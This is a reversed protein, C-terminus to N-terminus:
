LTAGRKLAREYALNVLHDNGLADALPDIEQGSLGLHLHRRWGEARKFRGSMRGIEIAMDEMTLVLSSFGQSTQLWGQQSVHAALATQKTKQVSVTNVFSGPAIRRRLGDCLGHPMGHYVTVDYDTARRPPTTKFNPMGRAFAATTALRATNTHDEMYDQPSHTLVISPKVERIVAAVSRLLEVSYLIELDDALSEHFIAGLIRSAERAERCRISRTAASNHESSGCNGSAIALYHAEYGARQLLLLTGAMYFEIDDPHAGIAIVVKSSM